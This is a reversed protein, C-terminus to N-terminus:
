CERSQPSLKDLGLGVLSVITLELSAQAVYHVWNGLCVFLSFVDSNWPLECSCSRDGIDLDKCHLYHTHPPYLCVCNVYYYHTRMCSHM